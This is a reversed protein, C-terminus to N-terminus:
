ARQQPLDEQDKSDTVRESLQAIVNREREAGVDLGGFNQHHIHILLRMVEQLLMRTEIKPIPDQVGAQDIVLRGPKSTQAKRLEMRLTPSGSLDVDGSPRVFVSTGITESRIM